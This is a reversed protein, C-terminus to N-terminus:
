EKVRTRTAIWQAQRAASKADEDDAARDVATVGPDSGMMDEYRPEGRADWGDLVKLAAAVLAATEAAHFRAGYSASARAPSGFYGPWGDARSM